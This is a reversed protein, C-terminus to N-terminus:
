VSSGFISLYFLYETKAMVSVQNSFAFEMQLLSMRVFEWLIFVINLVYM